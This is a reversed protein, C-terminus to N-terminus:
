KRRHKRPRTVMAVALLILIVASIGPAPIFSPITYKEITATKNHYFKYEYGEADTYNLQIKYFHDRVSPETIVYRFYRKSGPLFLETDTKNLLRRGDFILLTSETIGGKGLNVFAFEITAERSDGLVAYSSLKLEVRPV